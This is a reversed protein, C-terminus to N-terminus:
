LEKTHAHIINLFPFSWKGIECDTGAYGAACDCTYSDVGDICAGDYFCPNPYCHHIDPLYLILFIYNQKFIKCAPLWDHKHMYWLNM